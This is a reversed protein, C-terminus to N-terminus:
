LDFNTELNYCEEWNQKKMFYKELILLQNITSNIWISNLDKLLKIPQPSKYAKTKEIKEATFIGNKTYSESNDPDFCHNLLIIVLKHSELLM